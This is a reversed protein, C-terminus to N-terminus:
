PSKGLRAKGVFIESKREEKPPMASTPPYPSDGFADYDASAAASLKDIKQSVTEM